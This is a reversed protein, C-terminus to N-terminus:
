AIDAAANRERLTLKRGRARRLHEDIEPVVRLEIEVAERGEAFDDAAHQDDLTEVALVALSDILRRDVRAAIRQEGLGQRLEAEDLRGPDFLLRRKRGPKRSSHFLPANASSTPPASRRKRCSSSFASRRSGKRAGCANTPGTRRWVVRKSTTVSCRMSRRR